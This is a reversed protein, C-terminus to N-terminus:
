RIWSLGLMKFIRGDTYLDKDNLNRRVIYGILYPKDIDIFIRTRKQNWENVPVNESASAGFILVGQPTYIIEEKLSIGPLLVRGPYLLFLM